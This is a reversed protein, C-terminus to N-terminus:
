VPIWQCSTWRQPLPVDYQGLYRPGWTFQQTSPGPVIAMSRLAEDCSDAHAGEGYDGDGCVYVINPETLELSTNGANSSLTPDSTLTIPSPLTDLRTRSLVSASTGSM